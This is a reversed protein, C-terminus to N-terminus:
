GRPPDTEREPHRHMAVADMFKAFAAKNGIKTRLLGADSMDASIGAKELLKESAGFALITKCHRYQNSIFEVTHGDAAL